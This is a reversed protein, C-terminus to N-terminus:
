WPKIEVAHFESAWLSFLDFQFYIQAFFIHLVCNSVIYDM